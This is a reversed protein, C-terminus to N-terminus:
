ILSNKLCYDYVGDEDVSKTIYSAKEKVSDLANEMAVSTGVAEFMEIDNEGDGFAIAEDKSFNLHKLVQQIANGKGGCKPIIDIAKDWWAAIKINNTGEIIKNREEISCSCMIQYIQNNVLDDFHDSIEIEVKGFDFYKKLDNDIGNTVIYEKSSIAIARNMKKLNNIIINKDKEDIPTSRIVEDKYTVYSGNFSLFLDFDIGDFHPICPYSRGTAICILVGNEKLKNLTYKIKESLDTHGFSLITGDIDFFAIKIM